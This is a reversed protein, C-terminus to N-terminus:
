LNVIRHRELLFIFREAYKASPDKQFPHFYGKLEASENQAGAFILLRVSVPELLSATSNGIHLLVM